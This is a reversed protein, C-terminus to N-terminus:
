QATASSLVWQAVQKKLQAGIGAMTHPSAMAIPTRHNDLLAQQTSPGMAVWGRTPNLEFSTLALVSSPSTVAIIHATKLQQQEDSALHTRPTTTYTVWPTVTHGSKQLTQTLTTQAMDSCPWLIHQNSRNQLAMQEAFQTAAETANFITPIFDPSNNYQNLAKETATGVVAWQIRPHQLDQQHHNAFYAHVAHQSTFFIWDIPRHTTPCTPHPQYICEILPIGTITIAPFCSLIDRIVTCEDDPRSIVLSLSPPTPM